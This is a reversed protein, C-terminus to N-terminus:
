MAREPFRVHEHQVIRRTLGPDQSQTPAPVSDLIFFTGALRPDTDVPQGHYFTILGLPLDGLHAHVEANIGKIVRAPLMCGIWSGGSFERADVQVFVALYTRHFGAKRHSLAQRIGKRLGKLGGIQGTQLSSGDFRLKKAQIATARSPDASPWLLVDIENTARPRQIVVPATVEFDILCHEGDTLWGLQRRGIPDLFAWQVLDQERINTATRDYVIM